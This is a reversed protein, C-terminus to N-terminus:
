DQGHTATRPQTECYYFRGPGKVPVRRSNPQERCVDQRHEVAQLQQQQSLEYLRRANKLRQVDASLGGPANTMGPTRSPGVANFADVPQEIRLPQTPPPTTCAALALLALGALAGAACRSPTVM